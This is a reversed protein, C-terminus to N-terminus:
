RSGRGGASAKRSAESALWGDMEAAVVKLFKGSNGVQISPLPNSARRQWAKVQHVSVGMHKAAEAPTLLAQM